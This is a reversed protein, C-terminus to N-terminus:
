RGRRLEKFQELCKPCRKDGANAAPRTTPVAAVTRGRLLARRGVRRWSTRASSAAARRSRSWGLPDWKPMGEGAVWRACIDCPVLEETM